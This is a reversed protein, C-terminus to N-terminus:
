GGSREVRAGGLAHEVQEETQAVVETHCHEDDAVVAGDPRAGVAGDGEDVPLEGVGGLRREGRALLSAGISAIMVVFRSRRRARVMKVAPPMATPTAVM